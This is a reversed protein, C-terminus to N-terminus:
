TKEEILQRIARMTDLRAAWARIADDEGYHPQWTTPTGNPHSPRDRMLTAIIMRDIEALQSEKTTM